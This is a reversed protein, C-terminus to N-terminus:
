IEEKKVVYRYHPMDVGKYHKIWRDERHMRNRQAVNQSAINTDRIISCVEEAQLKEFAYWRCAEAAETAYGRHWHAYQFLYGIELVEKGKWPQVTIGCQGIMEHTGKLVVAWLGFGWRQYSAMQNDLWDQVEQDCFAGEYAYMVREDKMIRCLASFDKQELERFYLRETELIMGKENRRAVPLGKEAKEKIEAAFKVAKEVDKRDPHKRAIGGIKGWIGFTDLGRCQFGGLYEAGKERLRAAEGSAYNRYGVGCTIVTFVKQERSFQTEEMVKIVSRHMSNYFVGSAFGIVQYGSLDITEAAAADWLEAGLERAMAEVIKKTNGHHVSAYVIVKKM